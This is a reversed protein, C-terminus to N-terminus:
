RYIYSAVVASLAATTLLGLFAMIVWAVVVPTSSRIEEKRRMEDADALARCEALVDRPTIRQLVKIGLFLVLVDDLLGIVPIFSPIFQIPSLLYGATCAAVLKAYWHTRPHKFAFYFVYAEKHMKRAHQSWNM